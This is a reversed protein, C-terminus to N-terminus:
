ITYKRFYIYKDLFPPSLAVDFFLRLPSDSDLTMSMQTEPFLLIAKTCRENWCIILYSKYLFYYSLSQVNAVEPLSLSHINWIEPDFILSSVELM